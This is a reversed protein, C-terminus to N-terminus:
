KKNIILEISRKQPPYCLGSDSCGQYEITFILPKKQIKDQIKFPISVDLSQYYIEVEGFYEDQQIKGTPIYPEGLFGDELNFSLSKKYLYYGEAINFQVIIEEGLNEGYLIESKLQFAQEVKLLKPKEKLFDPLDNEAQCSSIFFYFLVVILKIKLM